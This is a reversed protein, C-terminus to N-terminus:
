AKMETLAKKNRTTFLIIGSIILIEGIVFIWWSFSEPIYVSSYEMLQDSMQWNLLDIFNFEKLMFSIYDETYSIIIILSGLIFFLWESTKIWVKKLGSTFYNILLALVIMTISNIVPGAVPGVWTVPILFLVDWTFISVPWGLFVKLFIYYFIDWIAFAYIFFGFKETKSRGTFIGIGILMILTAAERLIEITIINQNIPILPFSFGDPYYILRLYVVVATEMLGMAIAFLTLWFITNINTQNNM